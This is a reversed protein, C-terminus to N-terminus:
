DELRGGGALFSRLDRTVGALPRGISRGYEEERRILELVMSELSPLGWIFARDGDTLHKRGKETYDAIYVAAGLAGMERHGLTHHRIALRARKDEIGTVRPFHWAAAAGHLLMPEAAEEPGVHIGRLRCFALLEAGEMYRCYDHFLAAMRALEANLGFRRSLDEAVEVVGLSHAFRSPKEAREVIALLSTYDMSM